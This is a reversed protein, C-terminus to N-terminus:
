VFPVDYWTGNVAHQLVRSEVTPAEQYGNTHYVGTVVRHASDHVSEASTYVALRLGGVYRTDFNSYSGPFFRGTAGDFDYYAQTGDARIFHIVFSNTNDIVGGTWTIGRADDRIKWLPRYSGQNTGSFGHYYPAKVTAQEGYGGAGTQALANFFESTQVGMGNIPILKIAGDQRLEIANGGSKYNYLTVTEVGDDNNGLQWRYDGNPKISVLNMRAGETVSQMSICTGDAKTILSRGYAPNVRVNGDALLQIGCNAIINFFTARDGGTEDSGLLWREAGTEKYAGIQCQEGPTVNRLQLPRFNSDIRLPGTMKDGSANVFIEGYHAELFARLQALTAKKTSTSEDLAIVHTDKIDIDAIPHLEYIRM